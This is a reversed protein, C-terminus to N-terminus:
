CTGVTRHNHEVCSQCLGTHNCPRLLILPNVLDFCCIKCQLCTIHEISIPKHLIFELQKIIDEHDKNIYKLQDWYNVDVHEFESRGSKLIELAVDLM